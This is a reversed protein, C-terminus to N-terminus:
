RLGAEEFRKVSLIMLVSGIFSVGVGMWLLTRIDAHDLVIGGVLSGITFGTELAGILLGQAMVRNRPRVAQNAFYISAIAFVAYAAIQMIQSLILVAPSQALAATLIKLSFFVASIYLLKMPSIRKSLQAFFVMPLLELFAALSNLLGTFDAGMGFQGAVNPM